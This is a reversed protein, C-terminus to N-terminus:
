DFEYVLPGGPANGLNLVITGAGAGYSARYRAKIPDLIFHYDETLYAECPDGDADHAIAVDLQVPDSEMFVEAAVLTFRHDRCGGSYSATVALTDGAVDAAELEYDDAGWQAAADVGGQSFVVSGAISADDSPDTSPITSVPNANDNDDDNGNGCAAAWAVVLSLLLLTFYNM